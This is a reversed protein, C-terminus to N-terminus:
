PRRTLAAERDKYFAEMSANIATTGSITEATAELRSGPVVALMREPGIGTFTRMGICGFSLATNDKGIATPIAACGPRGFVTLPKETDWAAGGVTESWLMAQAPELWLLVVDPATPFDALPGYLIGGARKGTSPIHGPEDGGIYGCETMKGVLGMLEQSIPEPLDFGMVMAGIPCNFHDAAPAFFVAKEAERWFRCASPVVGDFTAVGDPPSDAFALAVPPLDLGLRLALIDATEANTM